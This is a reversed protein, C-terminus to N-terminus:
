CPSFKAKTLNTVSVVDNRYIGVIVSPALSSSQTFIVYVPCLECLTGHGSRDTRHSCFASILLEKRVRSSGKRAHVTKIRADLISEPFAFLVISRWQLTFSSTGISSGLFLHSRVFEIRSLSEPLPIRFLFKNMKHLIECRIRNAEM